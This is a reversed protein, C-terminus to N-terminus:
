ASIFGVHNFESQIKKRIWSRGQGGKLQKERHMTEKKNEYYECFIVVWPRFKATWDKGFENHSKFRVLLNSTYGIYIKDHSPSFLIYVTYLM